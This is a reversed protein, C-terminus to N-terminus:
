RYSDDHHRYGSAPAAQCPRAQRRVAQLASTDFNIGVWGYQMFNRINAHDHADPHELVDKRYYDGFCNLTQQESLQQLRAFAFIKCSGENCGAENVIATEGAGNSFRTPTYQYHKDIVEIVDSFRITEPTTRICDLLEQETM